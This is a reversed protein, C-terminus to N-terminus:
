YGYEDREKDASKIILRSRKQVIHISVDFVANPYLTQWDVKAIADYDPYNKKIHKYFGWIDSQYQRSTKYLLKLMTDKLNEKVEKELVNTEMDKQVNGVLSLYDMTLNLAISIYPKGDRIEVRYVPSKAERLEAVISTEKRTNVSFVTKEFGGEMMNYYKTEAATLKGVLKGERNIVAGGLIDSQNQAEREVHGATNNESTDRPLSSQSSVPAAAQESENNPDSISESSDEENKNKEKQGLESSNVAVMPIVSQKDQAIFASYVENLNNNPIYEEDRNRFMMDYYKSPNSTLMPKVSELYDYAQQQSVAVYADSRIEIDRAFLYIQTKLDKQAIDSSFVVLKTQAFSLRDALFSGALNVADHFDTAEIAVNYIPEEGGSSEGSKIKSTAIGQFTFKFPQKEGKDVGIATIFTVTEPERMSYCGSMTGVVAGILLLSLMKRLKKQM